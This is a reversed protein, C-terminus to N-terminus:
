TDLMKVVVATIDDVQPEDQTFDHAASLLSKVIEAAPLDRRERVVDLAREVGFLEQDPSEAEEIGDTLLVLVDGPAFAITEGCPVTTHSEFGLPISTSELVQVAGDACILYGQHGAAAYTLSRSQTDLRCLLLTM